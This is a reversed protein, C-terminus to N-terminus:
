HPYEESEHKGGFVVRGHEEEHERELEQALTKGARRAPKDTSYPDIYEQPLKAARKGCHFDAQAQM